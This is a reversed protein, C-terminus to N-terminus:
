FSSSKFYYHGLLHAPGVHGVVPVGLWHTYRFV